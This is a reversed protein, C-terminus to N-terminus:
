HSTLKLLDLWRDVIADAAFKRAKQLAATSLRERLAKDSMLQDLAASMALNDQDRILLGDVEHHIIDSPGSECDFSVCACGQSMAEVLVMSFGEYRSSVVFISSERMLRDIDKRFGLFDVRNAIGLEQALQTLYRLGDDGTGAIQLRWETHMPAVMAFVQLLNDFGKHHWSNLRGAALVTRSRTPRHSIIPFGVPNPLLHVRPLYANYHAFDSRTLVTLADALRYAMRRELQRLVEGSKVRHNIHEAAIVRIGLLKALLVLKGNWGGGHVPIIIDPREARLRGVLRPYYVLRRAIKNSVSSKFEAEEYLKLLRIRPDLEYVSNGWVVLISVELGRAVFENALISVVREAGGGGMTGSAFLIKV